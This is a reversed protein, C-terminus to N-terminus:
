SGCGVITLAIGHDLVLVAELASSDAVISRAQFPQLGFTDAM